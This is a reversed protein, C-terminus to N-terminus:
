KNSFVLYIVHDPAILQVHSSVEIEDLWQTIDLTTQPVATKPVATKPVETKPVAIKPKSCGGLEEAADDSGLYEDESATKKPVTM